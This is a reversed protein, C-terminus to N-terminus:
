LEPHESSYKLVAKSFNKRKKQTSKANNGEKENLNQLRRWLDATIITAMTACVQEFEKQNDVEGRALILKAKKKAGGQGAVINTVAVFMLIAFLGGLLLLIIVM